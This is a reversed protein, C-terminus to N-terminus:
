LLFEPRHGPLRQVRRPLRDHLRHEALDLRRPADSAEQQPTQLLDLRLPLQDAQCVIDQLDPTVAAADPGTRPSLARRPHPPPRFVWAGSIALRWYSSM